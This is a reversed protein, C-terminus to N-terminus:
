AVRTASRDTTIQYLPKEGLWHHRLLTTLAAAVANTRDARSEFEIVNAQRTSWGNTGDSRTPTM